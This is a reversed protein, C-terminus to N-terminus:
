AASLWGRAPPDATCARWSSASNMASECTGHPTFASPPVMLSAAHFAFGLQYRSVVSSLLRGVELDNSIGTAPALGYRLGYRATRRFHGDSGPIAFTRGIRTEGRPKKANRQM